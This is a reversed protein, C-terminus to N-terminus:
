SENQEFYTRAFSLLVDCLSVRESFDDARERAITHRPEAPTLDAKSNFAFETPPCHTCFHSGYPSEKKM